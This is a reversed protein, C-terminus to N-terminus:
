DDNETEVPLTQFTGQILYRGSEDMNNSSIM